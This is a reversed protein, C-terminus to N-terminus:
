LDNNVGIGFLAFDYKVPDNKDFLKLASTLEEVAKWDNSKRSLLELKRSVTATHVDLPLMLHSKDIDKWIGFDVGKNDNRVMWRLFMNIRKASSGKLPNAIHKTTRAEHPLSLFVSRFYSIADKILMNKNYGTTFVSELGNFNTYINKLAKLFFICDKGNFTRYIYKEFPILDKPGHNVIFDYPAHDMWRMLQNASKLISKRNGWAITASLFGAIEIDQKTTFQHPISIPDLEIFGSHNYKNEKIELFEKLHQMFLLFAIILNVKLYLIRKAQM